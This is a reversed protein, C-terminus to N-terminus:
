WSIVAQGNGERIGSQMSGNSVGGTYGSGGGGSAATRYGQTQTSYGGYWGGGAGGNGEWGWNSGSGTRGNQGLGFEYGTTQNGGDCYNTIGM